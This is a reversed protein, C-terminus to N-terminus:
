SLDIDGHAEDRREDHLQVCAGGDRGQAAHVHSTELQESRVPDALDPIQLALRDRNGLQSRRLVDEEGAHHGV